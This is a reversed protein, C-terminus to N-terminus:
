IILECGIRKLANTIDLKKINELDEKSMKYWLEAVPIRTECRPCNAFLALGLNRIEHMQLIETIRLDCKPCKIGTIKSPYKITM